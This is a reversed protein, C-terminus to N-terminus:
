SLVRNMTFVRLSM